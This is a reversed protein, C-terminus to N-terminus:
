PRYQLEQWTPVSVIHPAPLPAGSEPQTAISAVGVFSGNRHRKGSFPWNWQGEACGWPRPSVGFEWVRSGWAHGVHSGQSLCISLLSEGNKPLTKNQTFIKWCPFCCVAGHFSALPGLAARCSVAGRPLAEARQQEPPALPQAWHAAVAMSGHCLLLDWSQCDCIKNPLIHCPHLCLHGLDAVHILSSSM